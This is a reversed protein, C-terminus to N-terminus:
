NPNRSRECSSCRGWVGDSEEREGEMAVGPGGEVEKWRGRGDGVGRANLVGESKGGKAWLPAWNPATDRM